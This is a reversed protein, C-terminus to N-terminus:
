SDWITRAEHILHIAVPKSDRLLSQVVILYAQVADKQEGSFGIWYKRWWEGSTRCKRGVPLLSELAWDIYGLDDLGGVLLSPLYYRFADADIYGRAITAHAGTMRWAMMTVENWPRNAIRSALEQPIDMEMPEVGGVWFREPMPAVPFVGRILESLEAVTM